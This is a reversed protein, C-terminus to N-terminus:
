NMYNPDRWNPDNPNAPTQPAQNTFNINQETASSFSHCDMGVYVATRHMGNRQEDQIIVPSISQIFYYRESANSFQVCRLVEGGRGARQEYTSDLVQGIYMLQDFKSMAIQNIGTGYNRFDVYVATAQYRGGSERQANSITSVALIMMFITKKM